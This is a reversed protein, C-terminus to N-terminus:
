LERIHGVRKVELLREELELVADGLQPRIAPRVGPPVLDRTELLAQGPEALPSVGRERGPLPCLERAMGLARAREVVNPQQDLLEDLEVTVAHEAVVLRDHPPETPEITLRHYHEAM